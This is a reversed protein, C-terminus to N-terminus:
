QSTPHRINQCKLYNIFCFKNNLLCDINKITQRGKINLLFSVLSFAGAEGVGGTFDVVVMFCQMLDYYINCLSSSVATYNFWLCSFYM